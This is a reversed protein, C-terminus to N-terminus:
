KQMRRRAIGLGALGLGLLALTAPEPAQVSSSEENEVPGEYTFKGENISQGGAGISQIHASVYGAFDDATVLAVFSDWSYGAAYTLNTSTPNWGSNNWESQASFVGGFGVLGFDKFKLGDKTGGVLGTIDQEYVKQGYDFTLKAYSGENTFTFQFADRISLEGFSNDIQEVKKADKWGTLVFTLSEVNIPTAVTEAKVNTAVLFAIVLVLGITYNKSSTM